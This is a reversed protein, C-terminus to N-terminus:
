DAVSFTEYYADMELAGLTSWQMGYYGLCLFAASIVGLYLWMMIVFHPPIKIHFQSADM